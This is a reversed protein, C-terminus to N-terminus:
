TVVLGFISRFLDLFKDINGVLKTSQVIIRGKTGENSSYVIRSKLAVVRHLYEFSFRWIVVLIKQGPIDQELVPASM